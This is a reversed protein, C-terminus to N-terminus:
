AFLPALAGHATRLDELSASIRAGAVIELADGGVTGLVMLALQEGLRAVADACGSVVFGSGPSEGFLIRDFEEASADAGVLASVDITAGLGGALCSEAVAIAFGGEAVDHASALSGDRVFDRITEQAARLEAIDVAPM